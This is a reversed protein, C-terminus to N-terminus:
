DYCTGDAQSTPYYYKTQTKTTSGQDYVKHRRSVHCPYQQHKSYACRQAPQAMSSHQGHTHTNPTCTQLYMRNPNDKDILIGMGLLPHTGKLLVRESIIPGSDDLSVNYQELAQNLEAENPREFKAAAATYPLPDLQLAVSDPFKSTSIPDVQLPKTPQLLKRGGVQEHPLRTFTELIHKSATSRDKPPDGYQFKDLTLHHAWKRRQSHIDHYKLNQSTAGFGLFIGEYTNPDAKTPRGSPKKATLTCGPGNAKEMRAPHRQVLSKYTMTTTAAPQESHMQGPLNKEAMLAYLKINLRYPLLFIKWRPRQNKMQQHISNSAMGLVCTSSCKHNRSNAKLTQPYLKTDVKTEM